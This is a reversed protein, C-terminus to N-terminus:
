NNIFKARSTAYRVHTFRIYVAMKQGSKEFAPLGEQHKYASQCRLHLMTTYLFQFIENIGVFHRIKYVRSQLFLKKQM